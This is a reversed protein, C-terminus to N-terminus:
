TSADLKKPLTVGKSATLSRPKAICPLGVVDAIAQPDVGSDHCVFYPWALPTGELRRRMEAKDRAASVASPPVGGLGRQENLQAAPLTGFELISVFRLIPWGLTMQNILDVVRSSEETSAEDIPMDVAIVNGLSRSAIGDGFAIGSVGLDALHDFHWPGGGIFALM